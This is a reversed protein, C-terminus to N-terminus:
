RGYAQMSGIIDCYAKPRILSSLLDTQQSKLFAENTSVVPFGKFSRIPNLGFLEEFPTALVSDEARLVQLVELNQEPSYKYHYALGRSEAKVVSDIGWLWPLKVKGAVKFVGCKKAYPDIAEAECSAIWSLSVSSDKNRSFPDCTKIGNLDFNNRTLAHIAEPAHLQLHSLAHMPLLTPLAVNSSGLQRRLKLYDILSELAYIFVVFPEVGSVFELQEKKCREEFLIGIDVLNTSAVSIIEMEDVNRSPEILRQISM